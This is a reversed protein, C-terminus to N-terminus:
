HLPMVVCLPGAICDSGIFSRGFSRRVRGGMDLLRTCYVAAAERDGRKKHYHALFLLADATDSGGGGGGHIADAAFGRAELHRTYCRAAKGEECAERYLRALKATAIGERLTHIHTHTPPPTTTTTTHNTSAPDM